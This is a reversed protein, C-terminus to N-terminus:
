VDVGLKRPARVLEQAGRGFQPATVGRAPDLDQQRLVRLRRGRACAGGVAAAAPQKVTQHGDPRRALKGTPGREAEVPKSAMPRRARGFFRSASRSANVGSSRQRAHIPRTSATIKAEFSGTERSTRARTTPGSQLRSKTMSSM